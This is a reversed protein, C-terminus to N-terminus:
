FLLVVFSLQILSEQALEIDNFCCVVFLLSRSLSVQLQCFCFVCFVVLCQLSFRVFIWRKVAISLWFSQRLLAVGLPTLGIAGCRTVLSQISEKLHHRQRSCVATHAMRCQLSWVDLFVLSRVRHFYMSELLAVGLPTLGISQISEKLHHQQRSCVATHAMRCQQKFIAAM